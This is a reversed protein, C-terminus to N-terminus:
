KRRSVQIIFQVTGAIVRKREIVSSPDVPRIVLIEIRKNRRQVLERVIYAVRKKQRCVCVIYLQRVTVLISIVAPNLYLKVEFLVFSVMSIM